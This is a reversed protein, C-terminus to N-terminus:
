KFGSSNNPIREVGDYPPNLINKWNFTLNNNIEENTYSFVM